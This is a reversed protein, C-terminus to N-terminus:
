GPSDRQLQRLLAANQAELATLTPTERQETIAVAPAAEGEEKKENGSKKTRPPRQYELVQRVNKALAGAVAAKMKAAATNSRNKLLKQGADMTAVGHRIEAKMNRIEEWEFHQTHRAEREAKRVISQQEKQIRQLKQKAAVTDDGKAKKRAEKLVGGVTKKTEDLEKM